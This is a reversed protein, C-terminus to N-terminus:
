EILKYCRRITSDKQPAYNGAKQIATKGIQRVLPNKAKKIKKVALFIEVGKDM